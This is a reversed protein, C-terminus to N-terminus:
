RVTRAAQKANIVNAFFRPLSRDHNRTERFKQAQVFCIFFELLGL